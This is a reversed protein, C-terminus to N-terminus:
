TFPLRQDSCKRNSLVEPPHIRVSFSLKSTRTEPPRFFRTRLRSFRLSVSEPFYFSVNPNHQPKESSRCGYCAQASGLLSGPLSGPLYGLLFRAFPNRSILQLFLIKNYHTCAPLTRRFLCFKFITQAFNVVKQLFFALCNSHFFCFKASINLVLSIQLPSKPPAFGAIECFKKGFITPAFICSM